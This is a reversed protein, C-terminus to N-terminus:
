TARPGSADARRFDASHLDHKRLLRQLASRLMGSQEAAGTVNGGHRRLLDELYAREFAEVVVRKADRFRRDARAGSPRGGAGPMVQEPLDKARVTGDSALIVASELALRLQRVNGPWAYRELIELAEPSISLAPLRNLARLEEVFARALLAIDARREKLPAVPVISGAFAAILPRALRGEDAARHPDVAISAAIRPHRAPSALAAALAEQSSWPLDEISRVFVTGERRGLAAELAPADGPPVTVLSGPEASLEHLCTAAHRRGSGAEGFFLVPVRSAALEAVRRRLSEASQSRGLVQPAAEPPAEGARLRCLEALVTRPVRTPTEGIVAVVVARPNTRRVELADEPTGVAVAEIGDRLLADRARARVSPDDDLVLALPAQM